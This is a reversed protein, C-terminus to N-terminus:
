GLKRVSFEYLARENWVNMKRESWLKRVKAFNTIKRLKRLKRIKRFDPVEYFRHKSNDRRGKVVDMNMRSMRWVVM